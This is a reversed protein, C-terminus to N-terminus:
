NFAINSIRLAIIECIREQNAFFRSPKGKRFIGSVRYIRVKTNPDVKYPEDLLMDM